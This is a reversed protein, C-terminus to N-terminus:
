ESSFHKNGSFDSVHSEVEAGEKVESVAVLWHGFGQQNKRREIQKNKNSGDQNLGQWRMGPKHCYDELQNWQRQGLDWKLLGGYM